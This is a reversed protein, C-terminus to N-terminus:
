REGPNLDPVKGPETLQGDINALASAAGDCVEREFQTGSIYSEAGYMRTVMECVVLAEKLRARLGVIIAELDDIEDNAADRDTKYYVMWERVNKLKEEATMDKWTLGAVM